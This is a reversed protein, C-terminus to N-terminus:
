EGDPRCPRCEFAKARVKKMKQREEGMRERERGGEREEGVSISVLKLFSERGETVSSQNSSSIKGFRGYMMRDGFNRKEFKARGDRRDLGIENIRTM